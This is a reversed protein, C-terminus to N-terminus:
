AAVGVCTDVVQRLRSAYTHPQISAWCKAQIRAARDPDALLELM